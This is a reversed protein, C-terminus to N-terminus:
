ARITQSKRRYKFRNFIQLLQSFTIRSMSFSAIAYFLEFPLQKSILQSRIAVFDCNPRLTPVESFHVSMSMQSMVSFKLLIHVPSRTYHKLLFIMINHKGSMPEGGGHCKASFIRITHTVCLFFMFHINKAFVPNKGPKKGRKPM